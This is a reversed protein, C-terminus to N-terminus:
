EESFRDGVKDLQPLITRYDLKAYQLTMKVDAHGMMKAIHEIPIGNLAAVTTAFTRRAVHFTLNKQIGCVDAIEKLYANTKQNSVTPMVVGKKCVVPHDEYKDLIAKATKMLPITSLEDTKERGKYIVWIGEEVEEVRNRQLHKIDTYALGTFCAFVFADKVQDLRPITFEKNIIAKLEKENLHEKVVKKLTLKVGEFPDKTILDDRLALKIVKKVMKMYHTTTNHAIGVEVKLYHQFGEIFKRDVLRLAIETKGKEQKIFEQLHNVVTNHRKWTAYTFDKGILEKVKDNHNQYYALLGNPGKSQPFLKEMLEDLDYPMSHDQCERKYQRIKYTLHLIDEELQYIKESSGRPRNMKKDWEAPDLHCGMSIEKRQGKHTLRCFVYHKISNGSKAARLFFRISLQSKHSM